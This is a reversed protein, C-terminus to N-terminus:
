IACALSSLNLVSYNATFDLLELPTTEWSRWTKAMVSPLSLEVCVTKMIRWMSAGSAEVDKRKKKKSDDWDLRPANFSLYRATQVKARSQAIHCGFGIVGSRAVHFSPSARRPSDVCVRAPLLAAAISARFGNKILLHPPEATMECTKLTPKPLKERPSQNSRSTSSPSVM